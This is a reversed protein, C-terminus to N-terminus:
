TAPPVCIPPPAEDPQAPADRLYALLANPDTFCHSRPSELERAVARFRAPGAWIRLVILRPLDM